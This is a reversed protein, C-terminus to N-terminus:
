RRHLHATIACSLSHTSASSSLLSHVHDSSPQRQHCRQPSHHSAVHECETCSPLLQTSKGCISRPFSDGEVLNSTTLRLNNHDTWQEIHMIENQPSSTNSALVLLNLIMRISLCITELVFLIFSLLQLLTHCRVSGQLGKFSVSQVEAVTM